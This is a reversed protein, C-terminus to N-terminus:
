IPENPNMHALNDAAQQRTLTTPYVDTFRPKTTRAEATRPM